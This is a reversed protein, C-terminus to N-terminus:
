TVTQNSAYEVKEGSFQQYLEQHQQLSCEDKRIIYEKVWCLLMELNKNQEVLSKYKHPEWPRKKCNSICTSIGPNLFVIKNAQKMVFELLDAYCGEIVWSTNENLFQSMQVKSNAIPKRKPPDTNQWAVLDLDLHPLAYKDSHMNALTSKGSGANGFIVIKISSKQKSM